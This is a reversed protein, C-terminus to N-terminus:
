APGAGVEPLLVSLLRLDDAPQVDVQVQAHLRNDHGGHPLRVAKRHAAAVGIQVGLLPLRRKDEVSRQAQGPLHVCAALSGRGPYPVGHARQDLGLGQGPYVVHAYGVRFRQLLKVRQVGSGASADRATRM